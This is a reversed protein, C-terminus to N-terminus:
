QVILLQKGREQVTHIHKQMTKYLDAVSIQKKSDGYILISSIFINDKLIKENEIASTLQYYYQQMNEKDYAKTTVAFHAGFLRAVTANQFSNEQVVRAFTRLIKNANSFGYLQNIKEFHNIKLYLVWFEEENAQLTKVHSEFYLANYLKTLQDTVSLQALKAQKDKIERLYLINQVQVNIRAKLELVNFPKTIYDAGGVEFAKAIYEINHQATLFIIPIDKTRQESKLMSCLTFGDTHPMNVDLLILSIHEQSIISLAEQASLASFLEYEEDELYLSALQINIEEDDVILLKIKTDNEM